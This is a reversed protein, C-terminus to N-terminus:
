REGELLSAISVANLERFVYGEIQKIRKRLGCTKINPCARKKFFCESLRFRGQFIKRLDMLFIKAPPRALMFGGGQGKRSYLVRKRSLAQLLKRLFPRPIKLKQVLEAASVAQDEHRAIFCLARLAYDTNRNVLKM